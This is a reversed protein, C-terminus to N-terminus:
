EIYWVDGQLIHYEGGRSRLIKGIPVKVTHAAYESESLTFLLCPLNEKVIYLMDHDMVNILGYWRTFWGHWIIFDGVRPQWRTFPAFRALPLASNNANVRPNVPALPAGKAGIYNSGGPPRDSNAVM